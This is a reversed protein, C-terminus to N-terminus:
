VMKRLKREIFSLEQQLTLMIEKYDDESIRRKYYDRRMKYMLQQLSIKRKILEQRMSERQKATNRIYSLIGYGVIFVSTVGFLIIYLFVDNFDPLPPPTSIRIQQVVSGVINKEKLELLLSHDGVSLAVPMRASYMGDKGKLVIDYPEGDVVLRASITSQTPYATSNEYNIRVKLTTAGEQTSKTQPALLEVVVRDTLSLKLQGYGYIVQGDRNATGKAVLTVTTATGKDPLQIEVAYVGTSLQQMEYERNNYVLMVQVNKLTSLDKKAVRVQVTIKQGYGQLVNASPTEFTLKFFSAASGIQVPFNQDFFNGHEDRGYVRITLQAGLDKETLIYNFDLRLATPLLKTKGRVVGESTELIAYSTFNTSPRFNTVGAARFTCIYSPLVAGVEVTKSPRCVPYIRVPKFFLPYTTYFRQGGGVTGSIELVAYPSRFSMDTKQDITYVGNSHQSVYVTRGDIRVNLDEIKDPMILTDAADFIGFTVVIRGGKTYWNLNKNFIIPPSLVKAVVPVKKVLVTTKDTFSNEPCHVRVRVDIKKQSPDDASLYFTYAVVDEGFFSGYDHFTWYFTCENLDGTTSDSVVQFEILEGEEATTKNAALTIDAFVYGSATILLATSMVLVLAFSRVRPM